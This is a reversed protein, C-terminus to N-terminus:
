PRLKLREFDTKNLYFFPAQSFLRSFSVGTLNSLDLWFGIRKLDRSVLNKTESGALYELCLDRIARPFHSPAHPTERAKHNQGRTEEGRIYLM